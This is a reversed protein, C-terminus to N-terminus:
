QKKLGVEITLKIKENRKRDAQSTGVNSKRDIFTLSGNRALFKSVWHNHELRFLEQFCNSSPIVLYFM